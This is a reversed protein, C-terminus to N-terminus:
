DGILDARGEAYDIDATIYNGTAFTRNGDSLKTAAWAIDDGERQARRLDSVAGSREKAALSEGRGLAQDGEAQLSL